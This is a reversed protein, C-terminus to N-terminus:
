CVKNSFGGLSISSARSLLNLPNLKTQLVHEAIHMRPYVIPVGTVPPVRSDTLPYALARM